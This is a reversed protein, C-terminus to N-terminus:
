YVSIPVTRGSGDYDGTDDMRLQASTTDDRTYFRWYSATTADLRINSHTNWFFYPAHSLTSDLSHPILYDTVVQDDEEYNATLRLAYPSFNAVLPTFITRGADPGSGHLSNDIVYEGNIAYQVGVDITTELGAKHGYRDLPAILRWAHHVPGRHGIDYTRTSQAPLTDLVQGDRYLVVPALLKNRFTVNQLVEDFTVVNSGKEVCGAIAAAVALPALLLFLRPYRMNLPRTM